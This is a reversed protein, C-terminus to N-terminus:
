RDWGMQQSIGDTLALRGIHLDLFTSVRMVEALEDRAAHRLAEIVARGQGDGFVGAAPELEGAPEGLPGALARVARTITLRMQCCWKPLGITGVGDSKPRRPVGGVWGSSSSQSAPSNMSEPQDILAMCLFIM